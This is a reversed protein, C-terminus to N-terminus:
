PRRFDMDENKSSCARSGVSFSPDERGVEFHVVVEGAVLYEGSDARVVREPPALVGQGDTRHEPQVHTPVHGEDEEVLKVATFCSLIHAVLEPGREHQRVSGSVRGHLVAGGPATKM